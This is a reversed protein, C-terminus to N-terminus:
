INEDEKTEKKETEETPQKVPKKGALCDEEFDKLDEEKIFSKFKKM